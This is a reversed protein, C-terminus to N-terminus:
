GEEPGARLLALVADLDAEEGEARDRMARLALGCAAQLQGPGAGPFARRFADLAAEPPLDPDLDRELWLAIAVEGAPAGPRRPPARPGPLARTSPRAM